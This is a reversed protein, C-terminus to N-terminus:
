FKRSNEILRSLEELVGVVRKGKESILYEILVPTEFHVRKIILGFNELTKLSASLTRPSIGRLHEELENFRVPSDTLNKLILLTWKRGLISLLKQVPSLDHM